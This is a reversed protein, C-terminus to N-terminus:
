KIIIKIEKTKDKQQLSVTYEIPFKTENSFELKRNKSIIKDVLPYIITM